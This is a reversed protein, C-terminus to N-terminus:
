SIKKLQNLIKKSATGDGYPNKKSAMLEYANKDNILKSAEKIISSVSSGVLKATGASIAEPRETNDRMVLVPKGLSPAEEQIGGSDTMIFYSYKMLLTFEQYGMPDTLFVNSIGDLIEFALNKVNPNPHVPYVFNIDRFKVALEKISNFIEEFNKGFNERRHATILIFKKIKWDFSIEKSIIKEVKDMKEKSIDLNKLNLKISDIVTNGTVFIKDKKIGENILDDKNKNTPAFHLYSLRSVIQRNIEEPFPSYINNTRLGAEVHCVKIKLYFAALASAMTTTTDGHVIVYDPKHKIYVDKMLSIVNSTINFLDQNESMLDLDIDPQIEFVELVQDLMDRHQATVCALISFKKDNKLEWYLPALKIAEPRTGFVLMVKKVM